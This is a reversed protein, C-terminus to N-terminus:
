SRSTSTSSRASSPAFRMNTQWSAVDNFDGGVSFSRGTGGTLVLAAIHPESSFEDEAVKRCVEMLDLTMDRCFANTDKDRRFTVRAIGDEVDVTLTKYAQKM